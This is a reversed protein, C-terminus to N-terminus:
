VSSKLKKPLPNIKAALILDNESLGGISHTSLEIRLKRYGSLHIDPHHDEAEAVKAVRNILDIASLFDKMVYEVFISKEDASLKWGPVEKLYLIVQERGLPPTGGECPRCKRTSFSSARPTAM